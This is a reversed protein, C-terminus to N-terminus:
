VYGLHTLVEKIEGSTVFVQDRPKYTKIENQRSLSRYYATVHSLESMEPAVIFMEENEYARLRESETMLQERMKEGPRVGIVETSIEEPKYGYKPALEQIMVRAVQAINMVKMKFIFTEGGLALEGADMILKLANRMIIKPRVMDAHTITVPGGHAIQKRFLPFFSGRSGLVNGFRVSAFVTGRRANALTCLREALLKTAGYVTTPKVAKGTSPFIMKEVNHRLCLDIVNQTGTVNTKVAEYPNQECMPVNKLAALHFVFDVGDVAPEMTEKDRVDAVVSSVKGSKLDQELDYLAGEDTDVLIVARAETELLARVLQSGISGAGGTILITKRNYFANMSVIQELVAVATM